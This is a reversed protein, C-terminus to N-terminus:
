CGSSTRFTHRLLMRGSSHPRQTMTSDRPRLFGTYLEHTWSTGRKPQVSIPMQRTSRLANTPQCASATAPTGASGKFVASKCVDQQVTAEKKVFHGFLRPFSDSLADDGTWVGSWFSTSRSDELQVTTLAQYLLLISRLLEWHHGLNDCKM